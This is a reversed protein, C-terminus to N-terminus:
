IPIRSKNINDVRKDIWKITDLIVDDRNLENLMEHRGDKYLKYTCDKIGVSKYNEYLRIIGKGFKGVPDKDGAFIYIPLNKNVKKINDLKRIEKFLSFLDYFYGNTFVVGCSENQIYKDVEITDRSLWDFDTRNPNFKKNFGGFALKDILYAREDRGKIKCMFKAVILGFDVELGHIGNTGSLIVGEITDGFEMIYKQSAFSGMSHSFLFIPLNENENKIIKNLKRLDKVICDIGDKKALKGIDDKNMISKGHGRHDNIYVIYGNDNLARAFNEYRSAEESMGHSIQVVGKIAENERPKYKYVHIDLNEEGKFTFKDM